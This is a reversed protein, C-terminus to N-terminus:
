HLVSDQMEKAIQPSILTANTSLSSSFEIKTEKCIDSVITNVNSIYNWRLLPEGGSWRIHFFTYKTNQAQSILFTKLALLSPEDMSKRKVTEFCYPCGLNCNLTPYILYSCQSNDYKVRNHQYQILELENKKDEIIIGTDALQKLTSSSIKDLQFTKLDDYIEKSINVLSNYLLNYVYISKEKRIYNNYNSLKM